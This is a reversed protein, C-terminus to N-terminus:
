RWADTGLNARPVNVTSGDPKQLQVVEGAVGSQTGVVTYEEGSDRNHFASGPTVDVAHSGSEMKGFPLRPSADTAPTVPAAPANPAPAEPVGEPSGTAVRGLTSTFGPTTPAAEVPSPAVSPDVDGAPAGPTEPLYQGVTSRLQPVSPDLM